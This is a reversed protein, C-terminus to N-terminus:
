LNISKGDNLDGLLTHFFIVGHPINYIISLDKYESIHKVSILIIKTKIKCILQLMNKLTNNLIILIYFFLYKLKKAYAM